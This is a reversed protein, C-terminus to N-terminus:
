LELIARGEIEGKELAAVAENIEELRFRRTVLADLDLDGRSFWDLFVPVDRDPRCSGGISGTLLKEHALVDLPAVQFPERPIGVLVAMSHADTGVPKNRAAPLIQQVTAEAGICDFAYDVGAVPLGLLDVEEPSRTLERIREVADVESANVTQTAGHRRAMELKAPDLDVAIIPDAEAVRAAAIACLGVGGAGFVAVSQGAGVGATHMVAGAGTMVACGIICTVDTRVDDPLKVIYLEDAITHDAWTFVGQSQARRGSPQDVWASEPRRPPPEVSRAIWTVLVRDGVDVHAVSSGVDVVTGTAEHGLVIDAERPGHIEHLQSHCIGSSALKVVVQDPGPDPLTVSEIRLPGPEEPVVAVRAPTTM